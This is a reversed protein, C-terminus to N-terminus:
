NAGFIKSLFSTGKKEERVNKDYNYIKTQDIGLIREQEFGMSNVKIVAFEEYKSAENLGMPLNILHEREKKILTLSRIARSTKV